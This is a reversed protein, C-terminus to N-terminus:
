NIIFYLIPTVSLLLWIFNRKDEKKFDKLLFIINLLSWPFSGMFILLSILSGYQYVWTGRYDQVFINLVLGFIFACPM